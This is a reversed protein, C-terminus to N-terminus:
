SGGHRLKVESLVSFQFDGGNRFVTSPCSDVAFNPDLNHAVPTTFSHALSRPIITPAVFRLRPFIRLQWKYSAAHVRTVVHVHVATCELSV